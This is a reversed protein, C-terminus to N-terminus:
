AKTPLTLHTYSVTVAPATANSVSKAVVAVARAVAIPASAVILLRTVAVSLPSPEMVRVATVGPVPKVVPAVARSTEPVPIAEIVTAVVMAM